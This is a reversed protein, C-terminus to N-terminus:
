LAQGLDKRGLLYEAIQVRSERLFVHLEERLVETVTTRNWGFSFHM